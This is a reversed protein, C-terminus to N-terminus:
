PRSPRSPPGRRVVITRAVLENRAPGPWPRRIDLRLSFSASRATREGARNIAAGSTSMVRMSRISPRRGKSRGFTQLSAVHLSESKRRGMLSSRQSSSLEDFLPGRGDGIPGLGPRRHAGRRGPGGAAEVGVWGITPTTNYGTEAATSCGCQCPSKRRFREGDAVVSEVDAARRARATPASSRGRSWSRSPRAGQHVIGRGATMWQVDTPRSKALKKVTRDM